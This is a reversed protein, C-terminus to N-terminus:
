VNENKRDSVRNAEFRRLQGVWRELQWLEVYHGDVFQRAIVRASRDDPAAIRYGSIIQREEGVVFAQYEQM